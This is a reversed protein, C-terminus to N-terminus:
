CHSYLFKEVNNQNIQQYTQRSSVRIVLYHALNGPQIYIHTKKHKLFGQM